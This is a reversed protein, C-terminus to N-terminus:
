VCMGKYSRRQYELQMDSIQVRKQKSTTKTKKGEIAQQSITRTHQTLALMKPYKIPINDGPAHLQRM